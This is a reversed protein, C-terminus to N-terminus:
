EYFYEKNCYIWVVQQLLIAKNNQPIISAQSICSISFNVYQHSYEMVYGTEIDDNINMM